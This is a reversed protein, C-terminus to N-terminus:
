GLLQQPCVRLCILRGHMWTSAGYMSSEQGQPQQCPAADGEPALAQGQAGEAATDNEPPRGQLAEAAAASPSGAAASPGKATSQDPLPLLPQLCVKPHSPIKPRLFARPARKFLKHDFCDKLSAAFKGM